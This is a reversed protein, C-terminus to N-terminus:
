FKAELGAAYRRRPAPFGAAEQYRRDTLNELRLYPAFFALEYRAFLDYRLYSPDQIRSFTLADVDDRRGVFTARPSVSLARVPRWTLGAFARHRPRRLLERGTTRDEGKLYTYGADADLRATLEQRWSLEVGRTRARGVNQNKFTAFDFVILDRFDNWFLSVELRGSGFFREVGVEYSTSREPQLNPNGSFPFQLEGVSPARFARGVSGRVKWLAGPSLWSLTARPSWAHGFESHHDYRLGATAIWRDGLRLTDQLGAGWLTSRDNKLNVGFSSENDVTWREWSALATLTQRGTKWTDSARAQWTRANTDSSTFGFPDDPDRFSPKSAVRAVLLSAEHHAALRFTVPLEIQEERFGGRARPTEKGVPGPIGVEGDLISGELAIRVAEGLRGELRLSGNQERWDANTRDGGVRANRYSAAAALPGVGASFFVSGQRQGAGGAEVTARGTPSSTVPRTFIQIVGGLADSGYLASFPGRVIEIREVNETTLASFDYGSFYPSNVRAGDVLVLAQTSNTGRLFVSTLSGDSGQRVVDLGPVSRLLELVTTAGSSVIRERTIVTTASGLGREEEPTLTATVVVSESVPTTQGQAPLAPLIAVTLAAIPSVRRDRVRGRALRDLGFFLAVGVLDALLTNWFFPIAALYCAALGTLTQPYLSEAVWVAFNSTLFFLTSSSISLGALHIAGAGERALSGLLVISAVTAYITLRTLSLLSRGTGFDLFVDSLAMAALPVAFAWPRPLRAGAYLALAGLAVANPPHPLLRSLTGFLILLVATTM